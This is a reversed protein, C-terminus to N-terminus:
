VLKKSSLRIKSLFSGTGLLFLSTGPDFLSIEFSCAIKTMFLGIESTSLPTRLPSPLIVSSFIGTRVWLVTCRPSRYRTYIIVASDIGWEVRSRHRDARHRVYNHLRVSLDINRPRKGTVVPYRSAMKCTDVSVAAEVHGKRWHNCVPVDIRGGYAPIERDDRARKFM